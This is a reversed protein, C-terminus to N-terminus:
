LSFRLAEARLADIIEPLISPISRARALDASLWY